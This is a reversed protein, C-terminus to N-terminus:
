EADSIAAILADYESKVASFLAESRDTFKRPRLDETLESATTFLRDFGLNSCVGKLTHAARFAAEADGESFGRALNGFTPDGAFKMVFRRIMDESGLRSLVADYSGGIKGYLEELNM